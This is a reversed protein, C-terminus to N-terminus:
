NGILWRRSRYDVTITRENLDRLGLLGVLKQGAKFANQMCFSVRFREVKVTQALVIRGPAMMEYCPIKNGWSNVQYETVSASQKLPTNGTLDMWATESLASLGFSAAGTDFLAYELQGNPLGVEVVIHGGAHNGPWQAYNFPQAKAHNALEAHRSFALRAGKLDLTLTGQEFFENGLSGILQEECKGSELLAMQAPGAQVTVSQGAFELVVAKLPQGADPKKKWIVKDPAGTDLQAYCAIGNVKIPLLIAVKVKGAGKIMEQSHWEFPFWVPAAASASVSLPLLCFFALIFLALTRLM